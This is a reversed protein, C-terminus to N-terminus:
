RATLTVSTFERFLLQSPRDTALLWHDLNALVERHADCTRYVKWALLPRVTVGESRLVTLENRAHARCPRVVTAPVPDALGEYGYDRAEWFECHPDPISIAFPNEEAFHSVEVAM